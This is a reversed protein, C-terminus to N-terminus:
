LLTHNKEKQKKKKEKTQSEENRSWPFRCCGGVGWSGLMWGHSAGLRSVLMVVVVLGNLGLNALGVLLVADDHEAILLELMEPRVVVVVLVVEEVEVLEVEEDGVEDLVGDLAGLLADPDLLGDVGVAVEDVGEELLKVEVAVANDLEVLELGGVVLDELVVELAM